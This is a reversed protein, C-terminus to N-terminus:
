KSIRGDLSFCVGKNVEIEGGNVLSKCSPLSLWTRNANVYKHEEYIYEAIEDRVSIQTSGVRKEFAKEWGLTETERLLTILGDFGIKSILWETALAGFRYPTGDTPLSDVYSNYPLRPVTTKSIWSKFDEVTLSNDYSVWGQARHQFFYDPDNISATLLGLYEASGEVFWVPYERIYHNGTLDYQIQHIWEHEIRPIFQDTYFVKQQYLTYSHSVSAEPSLKSDIIPRWGGESEFASAWNFFNNKRPDHSLCWDVPFHVSRKSLVECRALHDELMALDLYIKSRSVKHFREWQLVAANMRKKTEEVIDAPVNPGFWYEIKSKPLGTAVDKSWLEFNKVASSDREAFRQYVSKPPEPTPTPTPSVSSNAEPRVSYVTQDNQILYIEAFGQSDFQTIFRDTFEQSQWENLRVIFGIDKFNKMNNITLTVRAGYDDISEFPVGTSSVPSDKTNDDSNRWIWLNWGSYDGSNRKYRITVTRVDQPDRPTSSSTPTPSPTPSPTPASAESTSKTKTGKSWVIKKGSKICRYTKGKYDKTIGQKSCLAGAKPPIAANIPALITVIMALALALRKM